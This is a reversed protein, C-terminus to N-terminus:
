RKDKDTLENLLQDLRDLRVTWHDRFEELWAVAAQMPEATLTAPRTQRQSGRRILGAQELVKLHRSVAPQSIEFPKGLEGATATGDALRALIARRTPDALASFIADLSPSSIEYGVQKM